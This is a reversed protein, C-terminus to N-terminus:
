PTTVNDNFNNYNNQFIQAEDIPFGFLNFNNPLPSGVTNEDPVIVDFQTFITRGAAKFVDGAVFTGGTNTPNLANGSNPLDNDGFARFLPRTARTGARAM